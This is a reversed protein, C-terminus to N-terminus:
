PSALSFRVGGLLRFEFFFDGGFAPKPAKTYRADQIFYALEPVFEGDNFDHRINNPTFPASPAIVFKKADTTRVILACSSNNHLRLLISGGNVPPKYTANEVREFSVTLSDQAQDLLACGGSSAAQALAPPSFVLALLFTPLLLKVNM